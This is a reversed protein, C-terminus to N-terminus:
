KLVSLRGLSDFDFGPTEFASRGLVMSLGYKLANACSALAMVVCPQSSAIPFRVVPDGSTESTDGNFDEPM